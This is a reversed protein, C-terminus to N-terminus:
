RPFKGTQLFTRATSQASTLSRRFVTQATRGDTVWVRWECEDMRDIEAMRKCEQYVMRTIM